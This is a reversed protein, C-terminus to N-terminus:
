VQCQPCTSFRRLCPSDEGRRPLGFANIRLVAFISRAGMALAKFIRDESSVGGATLTGFPGPYIVERGRFTAKFVECNGHCGDLCRTCLGSSSVTSRSRNQTQTSENANPQLLNMETEKPQIIRHHTIFTAHGDGVSIRKIEILLVLIISTSEQYSFGSITISRM